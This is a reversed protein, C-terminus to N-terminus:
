RPLPLVGFLYLRVRLVYWGPLAGCTEAVGLLGLARSLWDFDPFM